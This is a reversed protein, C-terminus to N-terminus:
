KNRRCAGCTATEAGVKWGLTRATTKITSEVTVRPKTNMHFQEIRATHCLSCEIRARWQHAHPTIDVM